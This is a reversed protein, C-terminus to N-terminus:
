AADTTNGRDACTDSSGLILILDTKLTVGLAGVLRLLEVNSVHSDSKAPIGLSLDVHVIGVGVVRTQFKGRSNGPMWYYIRAATSFNGAKPGIDYSRAALSDRVARQRRAAQDIARIAVVVIRAPIQTQSGSRNAWM